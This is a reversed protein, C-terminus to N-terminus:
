KGVRGVSLVDDTDLIDIRPDLKFGVPNNSNHQSIAYRFATLVAHSNPKVLFGVFFHLFATIKLASATSKVIVSAFAKADGM